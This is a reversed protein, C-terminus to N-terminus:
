NLVPLIFERYMALDLAKGYEVVKYIAQGKMHDERDFDPEQVEIYDELIQSRFNQYLMGIVRTTKIDIIPSGSMGSLAPFSVEIYAIRKDDVDVSTRMIYGKFLRPTAAAQYGAQVDEVYSYSVIDTGILRESEFDPTFTKYYKSAIEGVKALALDAYPHFRIDKLGDFTREKPDGIVKYAACPIHHVKKLVHSCTLLWGTTIFCGTGLFQVTKIGKMDETPIVDLIPVIYESANIKIM